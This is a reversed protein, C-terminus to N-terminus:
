TFGRDRLIQRLRGEVQPSSAQTDVEVIDANARGLQAALGSRNVEAQAQWIQRVQEAPRGDRLTLRHGAETESCSFLLITTCLPALGLRGLLAGVLLRARNPREEAWLRAQQTIWPHTISELAQRQAPDSFVRRGLAARDIAGEGNLLDRGFRQVLEPQLASLAQHGLRDLELVAWGQDSLWAAWTSKGSGAKGTAGWLGALPGNTDTDM